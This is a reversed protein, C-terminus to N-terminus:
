TVRSYTLSAATLPTASQSVRNKSLLLSASVHGQPLDTVSSHTANCVSNCLRKFLLLSAHCERSGPLLDTVSNNTTNYVIKVSKHCKQSFLLSIVCAWSFWLHTVSSYHVAGDITCMVIVVPTCPISALLVHQLTPMRALYVVGLM